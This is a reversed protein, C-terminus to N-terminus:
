KVPYESLGRVTLLNLFSYPVILIDNKCSSITEIFELLLGNEKCCKITRTSMHNFHLNSGFSFLDAIVTASISTRKNDQQSFSHLEAM